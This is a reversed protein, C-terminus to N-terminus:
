DFLYSAIFMHPVCIKINSIRRVLCVWLGIDMLDQVLFAMVTKECWFLQIFEYCNIAHLGKLM